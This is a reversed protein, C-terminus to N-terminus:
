EFEWGDMSDVKERKERNKGLKEEYIAIEDHFYVYWEYLLM